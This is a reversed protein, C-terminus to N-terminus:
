KGCCKKYKKQSGCPCPDNRGTKPSTNRIPAPRDSPPGPVCVAPQQINTATRPHQPEADPLFPVGTKRWNERINNFDAPLEARRAAYIADRAKLRSRWAIEEPLTVGTMIATALLCECLELVEPDDPFAAVLRRSEDLGALSVLETLDLLLSDLLSEGQRLNQGVGVALEVGVLEILAAVSEPRKIKALSAHAFLRVDWRKGPYFAVLREIVRTTAIRALARNVEELLVDADVLLKGVLADVAPEYRSVGLVRVAFTERWGRVARDALVFMAKECIPPGGRAAAEILADSPGPNFSFAYANGLERGHQMLRDWAIAPDQDLLSLRLELRERVHPLLQPCSLLEDRNRALVGLDMAGAAHQYHFEFNELSKGGLARVLRHLSADTQPVDNLDAAFGLTGDNEGSRDIVAWYHDATLPGFAYSGRFYGLAHDRVIPDDHQLFPIVQEPFVM